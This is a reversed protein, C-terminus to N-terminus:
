TKNNAIIKYIKNNFSNPIWLVFGDLYFKAPGQLEEELDIEYVKANKTIKYLKGEKNDKGCSSIIIGGNKTIVIGNINENFEKIVNVEKTELNIRLISSINRQKNFTTAYLFRDDIAINNINGLSNEIAVFTHYNKKKLNVLLILGTEKDSVLLTNNDLQIIDSLSNVGSIPFNLVQKKTMLNFAKISDIDTVYIINDIITMSYPANLNGIFQMDIIKGMRDLKSIFGTGNKASQYNEVINSVFINLNTAAISQPTKFGEIITTQNTDAYLNIFGVFIIYLVYKKM